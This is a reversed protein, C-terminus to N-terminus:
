MKHTLCYVENLLITIIFASKEESKIKGYCKSHLGGMENVKELNDFCTQDLHINEFYNTCLVQLSWLSDEWLFLFVFSVTSIFYIVKSQKLFIIVVSMIGTLSKASSNNYAISINRVQITAMTVCTKAYAWFWLIEYM